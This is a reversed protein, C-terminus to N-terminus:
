RVASAASAAAGDSVLGGYAGRGADDAGVPGPSRQAPRVGGAAPADVTQGASTGGGWECSVHRSRRGMNIGKWFSARKRVVLKEGVLCGPTGRSSRSSM